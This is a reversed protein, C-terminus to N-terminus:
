RLRAFIICTYQSGVNGAAASKIFRLRENVALEYSLVLQDFGHVGLGTGVDVDLAMLNAANAADRHQFFLSSQGSENVNMMTIVDYIGGPLPGTDALVSNAAPAPKRGASFVNTSRFIPSRINVDTPVVTGLSVTPLIADIVNLVGLPGRIQLLRVLDAHVEPDVAQPRSPDLEAL